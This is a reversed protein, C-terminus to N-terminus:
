GEPFPEWATAPSEFFERHGADIIALEGPASRITIPMEKTGSTRIALAEYYTGGRLYLVDGPQLQKLAHALTKWPKEKTGAQADDGKPDAYVAHGQALPRDNATPLPRMPAHSAYTAPAAHGNFGPALLIASLISILPPTKMPEFNM